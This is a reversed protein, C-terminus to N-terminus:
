ATVVRLAAPWVDVEVHRAARMPEGDAALPLPADASVRLSALRAHQVRPHGLHRGLLLRPLMALAGLRGFRGAVVVDLRGDDITAAPMVPMGGGYTPTNLASAFLADGDHLLRADASVRVRYPRLHAIEALTALLYRALGGLVRPGRRAREAIAADFGICLSSVVLAREHETRVRALDIPRAAGHLGVRLADAWALARVGFARATDSGSGAAVLALEHSGAVLAPLLAHVTGDGGAVVIRTGAALAEVRRRAEDITSTAAFAAAPALRRTADRMSAELRAARGGGAARNLLVLAGPAADREV